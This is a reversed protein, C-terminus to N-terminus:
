RVMGVKSARSSSLPRVGLSDGGEPNKYVPPPVCVTGGVLNNIRFGLSPPVYRGFFAFHVVGVTGGGLTNFVCPFTPTGGRDSRVVRRVVGKSINVFHSTLCSYMWLGRSEGIEHPTGLRCRDSHPVCNHHDEVTSTNHHGLQRHWPVEGHHIDRSSPRPTATM